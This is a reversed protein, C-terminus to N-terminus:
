GGSSPCHFVSSSLTWLSTLRRTWLSSLTKTLASPELARTGTAEWRGVNCRVPSSSELEGCRSSASWAQLYSGSDRPRSYESTSASSLSKSSPAFFSTPSNTQSFSRQFTLGIIHKPNFLSFIRMVKGFNLLTQADLEGAHSGNGGITCGKNSLWSAPRNRYLIVSM